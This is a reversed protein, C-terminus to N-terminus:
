GVSSLVRQVEELSPYSAQAGVHTAALGAAVSASVAAERESDGCALRGLFHGFFADGCGTTDVTEVQVSPIRDVSDGQGTFIALSEKGGRTVIVTRPGLTALKILDSSELAQYRGMGLIQLAEGENVVLIDTLSLLDVARELFPSFNLCTTAGSQQAVSFASRIVEADIELVGSVFDERVARSLSDCVWGVDLLSNSGPYVVIQNEGESNVVIMATGSLGDVRQIREVDVHANTLSALITSASDDNGLAGIMSVPAGSLGAAVAQNAGKGGPMKSLALGEVTEGPFPFRSTVISYDINLSGVVWLRADRRGDQNEVM